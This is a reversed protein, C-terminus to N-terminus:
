EGRRQGARIPADSIDAQRSLLHKDFFAKVRADVEPNNFQGHGGGEVTIFVSPVGAKDLAADLEVSQQHPVTMDASGHIILFPPDDKTVFTVPSAQRAVDQNQKAPGGLLKSEPSDPADHKMNSPFDGMTLMNSPGFFDVVCTVRSGADDFSGLDGEVEKVDGSTGLMAVLHGGASSGIVGIRDPDYGYEAAHARLWRIAAKCDHIQAPWSAVDTLRYGISAGAYEGSEVYKLVQGGAGAKDGNRWGGGHIAVILPVKNSKPTKPLYLDLRQRPHDTDAYPVDREARVGDPVRPGTQAAPRTQAPPTERTGQGVALHEERSIAGDKNKDVGDFNPRLREPLEERSLKGDKDADWRDFLAGRDQQAFAIAPLLCLGLSCTRAVAPLRRLSM